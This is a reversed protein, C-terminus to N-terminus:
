GDTSVTLFEWADIKQKMASLRDHVQKLADSGAPPTDCEIIELMATAAKDPDGLQENKDLRRQQLRAKRGLVRHDQRIDIGTRRLLRHEM